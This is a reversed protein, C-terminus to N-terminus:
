TGFYRYKLFLCVKFWTIEGTTPPMIKPYAMISIDLLLPLIILMLCMLMNSVVCTYVCSQRRLKERDLTAASILICNETLALIFVLCKQLLTSSVNVVSVCYESENFSANMSPPISTASTNIVDVDM